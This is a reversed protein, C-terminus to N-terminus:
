FNWVWTISTQRTFEDPAGARQVLIEAMRGYDVSKLLAVGYDSICFYSFSFVLENM